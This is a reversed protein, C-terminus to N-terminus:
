LIKLKTNVKEFFNRGIDVFLSPNESIRFEFTQSKEPWIHEIKQGDILIVGDDACVTLKRSGHIVQPRSSLLYPAIPVLLFSDIRPDTIPGGASLAYATSGTPTAIILGDGKFETAVIDDISVSFKVINYDTKFVVENLATGIVKGERMIDIRMRKETKFVGKNIIGENIAESIKEIANSQEVDTLFGVGGFNIGIIPRQVQMKSVVRLLTGDGGVSIVIDSADLPSVTLNEWSEGFQLIEINHKTYYFVRELKQAFDLEAKGNQRTIISIKM